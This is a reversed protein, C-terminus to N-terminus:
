PSVRVRKSENGARDVATVVVDTVDAAVSVARARGPEVRFQWPANEGARTWIAYARIPESGFAPSLSLTGRRLTARPAAPPKGDLWPTAPVLAEDTYTEKLLLQNLADNSLFTKFSFHVHGAPFPKERTIAIQNTVEDLTYVTKGKQDVRGTYLGPWLHRHLKNESAWYDVLAPFSQAKQAIPWYLQPTFYDCWGKQLWLAADAYLKDYQDFGALPEPMHGKRGLGFPSIGFKVWPKRKQKGEYIREVFHNINQRRWDERSLPKEGKKVSALYRQWSPEDPFPKESKDNEDKPNSRVPYPYFYDDIHIGDVDYREIVDMFVRFSLDEAAPEGPDLWLFGGYEKVIAPNTKSIHTSALPAKNASHMARYPNFWAHLEIGRAHAGDIWLKLPDYGPSKGQEGTLYVSWPELKSEYLADATTRVQVVLANLKLEAARDLIAEIEKKQTAADLGRKSPWDINDVTAVWAARFERPAPPPEAALRSSETIVAAATPAPEVNGKCGVLACAAWV